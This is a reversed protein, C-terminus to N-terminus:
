AHTPNPRLLNPHVAVPGEMILGAIYWYVRDVWCDHSSSPLVTLLSMAVVASWKQGARSCLWSHALLSELDVNSHRFLFHQTGIMRLDTGTQSRVPVQRCRNANGYSMMVKKFKIIFYMLFHVIM